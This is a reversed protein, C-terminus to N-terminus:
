SLGDNCRKIPFDPLQKTDIQDAKVAKCAKGDSGPRPRDFQDHGPPPEICAVRMLKEDQDPKSREQHGRDREQVHAVLDPGNPTKRTRRLCESLSADHRVFRATGGLNSQCALRKKVHAASYLTLDLLSRQHQGPDAM